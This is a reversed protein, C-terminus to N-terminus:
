RSPLAALMERSIERAHLGDPGQGRPQGRGPGVIRAAFIYDAAPSVQRGVFWGVSQGGGADCSGTKGSFVVGDKDEQVLIKRVIEMNRPAFPLDARYLRRLFGVQEDPSILLSSGLWFRTLGGSIDRNGYGVADLYGQMRKEGVGAAVRQFYWVVSDRVATALTHSHEWAPLPQPTRDWEFLTTEDKLVGSELGALSNFVKFTSCPPLRRRCEAENVRLTRDQGADYLVFCADYGAALDGLRRELIPQRADPSALALALLAAASRAPTM